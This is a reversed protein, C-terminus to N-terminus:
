RGVFIQYDCLRLNTKVRLNWTDYFTRNETVHLQPLEPIDLGMRMDYDVLTNCASHSFSFQEIVGFDTGGICMFINTPVASIPVVVSNTCELWMCDDSM